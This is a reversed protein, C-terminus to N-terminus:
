GDQMVSECSCVLWSCLSSRIDAVVGKGEIVSGDGKGSGRHFCIHIDRELQNLRSVSAMLWSNGSHTSALAGVHQGM